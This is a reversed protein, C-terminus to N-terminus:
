VLVCILSTSIRMVIEPKLELPVSEDAAGAGADGAAAKAAASIEHLAALEKEIDIRPFTAEGKKVQEQYMM